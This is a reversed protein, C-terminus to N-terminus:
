FLLRRYPVALKVPTLNNSTAEEKHCYNGFNSNNAAPVGFYTKRNKLM